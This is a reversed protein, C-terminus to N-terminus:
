AWKRGSFADDIETAFAHNSYNSIIKVSIALIIGLMHKENYGARTFRDVDSATPRGQTLVMQRTFDALAELKEDPLRQGARLANTVNEPVGSMTDAIMSHAAMCYGCGNERSVSLFVIEQEAPSFGSGKRFQDYGFAYMTFMAPLNAMTAYMNPVMGLGAKAKNMIERAEPEAEEPSLPKLSNMTYNTVDNM